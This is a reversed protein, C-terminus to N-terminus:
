RMNHNINSNMVVTREQKVKTQTMVVNMNTCTQQRQMIRNLGMIGSRHSLHFQSLPQKEFM